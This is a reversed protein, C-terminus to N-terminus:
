GAAMEGAPTGTMPNIKLEEITIMALELQEGSYIKEYSGDEIVAKMAGLLAESLGPNEKSVAIGSYETPMEEEPVEVGEFTNPDAEATEMVNLTVDLWADITGARLAQVAAAAGQYEAMKIAKDGEGVCATESVEAVKAAQNSGIPVGITLGCLDAIAHVDEPNGGAVLLAHGRSQFPILDLVSLEREETISVQGFLADVTGAQLGPIQAPWALNQWEVEVGLIEGFLAALEPAIGVATTPDMESVSLVPPTEWLGGFSIAGSEKIAEPLLDHLKQDFREEGGSAAPEAGPAAGGCGALTLALAVAGAVLALRRPRGVGRLPFVTNM